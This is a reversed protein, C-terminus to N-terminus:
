HEVHFMLIKEDEKSRMLGKEEETKDKYGAFHLVGHVMVRRLEEELLVKFKSANEKVREISIFIDGNLENGLSNDFSIIDTYTDHNLFKQNINLLYGDLCFIFNIEGEEKAESKIVNNLWNSLLSENIDLECQEYFFNIM